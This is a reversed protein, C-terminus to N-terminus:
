RASALLAGQAKVAALEAKAFELDTAWRRIREALNGEFRPDLTGGYAILL